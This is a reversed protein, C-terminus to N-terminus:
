LGLNKMEQALKNQAALTRVLALKIKEADLGKSKKCIELAQRFDSEAEANKGSAFKALGLRFLCDGYQKSEIGFLYSRLSELRRLPIEAEGTENQNEFIQALIDYGQEEHEKSGFLVNEILSIGNRVFQEAEQFSGFEMLRKATKFNKEIEHLSETRKAEEAGYDYNKVAKKLADELKQGQPFGSPHYTGFCEENCVKTLM